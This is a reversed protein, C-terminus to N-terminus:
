SKSPTAVAATVEVVPAEFIEVQVDEAGAADAAEKRLSTVKSESAELDALTDWSTSVVSGGTQRDVGMITARYGKLAKLVPLVKNRVFVTAADVKDPDGRITNVRSFTGSKPPQARDMIVIESREVNVIQTGPVNKAAQTRTQIGVQESASMHKASDWYTVGVGSGTKRDVLLTAGLYGPASRASPIVQKHFNEIAKDITDPPTQVRTGRIFM